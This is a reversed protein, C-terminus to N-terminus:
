KQFQLVPFREPMHSDYKGHVSLSLGKPEDLKKGAEDYWQFRFVNLRLTEGPKPPFTRGAVKSLSAWPLVIEVSWGQDVDFADNITGNVFVTTDLGPLDWGIFGTREGRPHKHDKIGALRMTDKASEDFEANQFRPKHAADDWIWYVDYITGLANIELEYYADGGDVFVEIDNETYIKSDRETLKARIDLERLGIGIYLNKDDYMFHVRTGHKGREGTVIDVMNGTVFSDKWAPENMLGDVTVPQSTKPCPLAPPADMARAQKGACLLTLVFVVFFAIAQL